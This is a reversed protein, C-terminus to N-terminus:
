EPYIEFQKKRKRFAISEQEARAILADSNWVRKEFERHGALQSVFPIGLEGPIWEMKDPYLKCLLELLRIGLVTPCVIAPDEVHFRIGSCRDGTFKSTNPTFKVAEAAIGPLNLEQFAACLNEGDIFPAGITAFPASTGRGESLNTGEILCMGPYLLATEFDPINPSPRLWAKGWDYFTFKRHLGACPVVHLDCDWNEETKVMRSFEGCTLGYCVPIPHCGVFSMLDRQMQIGEVRDGLPNPRDLVVLRKGYLACDEILLKLTSLYTYYRSGVDQIDYVITDVRAFAERPLRKSTGSYMSLVELGTEIDTESDFTEGAARNGRIGHEPALLLRLDCFRRLVDITSEGQSNRGTPTTVLAVRGAFLDAYNKACDVGFELM